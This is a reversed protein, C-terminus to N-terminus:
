RRPGGERGSIEAVPLRAPVQPTEDPYGLCVMAVPTLPSAVGVIEGVRRADFLGVWCGALGHAHAALLINQVAAAVEQTAVSTGLDGLAEAATGFDTSAVIVLPVGAVFGQGVTAGALLAITEPREVVLFRRLQLSAPTPAWRAAELLRAVLEPLVARARYHRVSRRTQICEMTNM